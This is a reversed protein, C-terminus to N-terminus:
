MFFMLFTNMEKERNEERRKNNGRKSDGLIECKRM